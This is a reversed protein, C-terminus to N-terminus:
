GAANGAGGKGAGGKDGERTARRSRGMNALGTVVGHLTRLEQETPTAREFFNRLNAVMTARKHVPRLFGCADLERELHAYFNAMEEKRAPRTDNTVLAFPPTADAAAWWEYGVLLVAQALNLSMFGRNLPIRVFTDARVVDENVLGAREPGFLVGARVGQAALARLETGAGRATATPKIMHRHRPCTAFVRELDAVAEETTDFLKANEIVVDAGSAMRRAAENPWRCRPAVLRLETLGCNLMARASAGINEGLQPAVLIVAPTDPVGRFSQAARKDTGSAAPPGAGGASM